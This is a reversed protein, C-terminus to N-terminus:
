AKANDFTYMVEKCGDWENTCLDSQFFNVARGCVLLNNSFNSPNYYM